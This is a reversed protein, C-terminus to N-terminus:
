RADPVRRTQMFQELTEGRMQAYMELNSMHLTRAFKELVFFCVGYRVLGLFDRDRVLAHEVDDLGAADMTSKEDGQFAARHAPEALRWLFRNLRLAKRSRRIDFLYTGPLREIGELQPNV